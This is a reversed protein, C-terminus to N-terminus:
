TTSISAFLGFHFLLTRFSSPLYFVLFDSASLSSLLLLRCRTGSLLLRFCLCYFLFSFLRFPGSSGFGYGFPCSLAFLLLFSFFGSSSSFSFSSSSFPPTRFVSPLPLLRLPRCLRLSLLRLFLFLTPNWGLGFCPVIGVRFIALSIRFLPLLTRLLM